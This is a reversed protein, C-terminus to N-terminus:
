EREEDVASFVAKELANMVDVIKQHSKDYWPGEDAKRSYLIAKTNEDSITIWSANISVKYYRKVYDSVRLNDTYM